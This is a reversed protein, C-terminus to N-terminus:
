QPIKLALQSHKKFKRKTNEEKRPKRSNQLEQVEELTVPNLKKGKPAQILGKKIMLRTHISLEQDQFAYGTNAMDQFLQLVDVESLKGAHAELLRKQFYRDQIKNM